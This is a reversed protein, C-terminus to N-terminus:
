IDFDFDNSDLRVVLFLSIPSNIPSFVTSSGAKTWDSNSPGGYEYGPPRQNLDLGRSWVNHCTPLHNKRGVKKNGIPHQASNGYKLRTPKLLAPRDTPRAAEFGESTLDFRPNVGRSISGIYSVDIDVSLRPVHLMFLNIATGGHLALRGKLAPRHEMEDLLDLLRGVKDM